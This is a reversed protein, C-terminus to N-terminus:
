NWIRIRRVPCLTATDACKQIPGNATFIHMHSLLVASVSRTERVNASTRTEFHLSINLDFLVRMAPFTEHM